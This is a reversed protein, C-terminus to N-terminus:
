RPEREANSEALSWEVSAVLERFAGDVRDADGTTLLDLQLGRAAGWVFTALREARDRDLGERMLLDTGLGVWDAVVGDLFSAYREPDQLALGHVEYYVHFFPLHELIRGWVRRLLEVFDLDADLQAAVLLRERTRAERLIESLLQARSGFHYLLTRHSVGVAAGLSRLSLDRLGNAFVHDTARDLLDRRVGAHRTRRGDPRPHPDPEM